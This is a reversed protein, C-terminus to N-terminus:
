PILVSAGVTERSQLARHADRAEALPWSQRPDVDVVGELVVDFLTKASLLLEQRTSVYHFLTPRTLFLSGKRALVLPDFAAAAGSANGFGVLMGRPALCDISREFTAKGVSDYVVPVGVGDTLERVRAVVDERDYVITHHCGHAKALAAKEDSGVTGIVQVGLARLWQCAILGVGGAAAHLLVTMGSKVPFCRHLLYEVTMGKLMMSAAAVDSIGEPLPVVHRAAILRAECYAGIPGTAYAVRDGVVVESVGDGVQEVVGAAELGLGSPLEVPYLGSRHYTDIFNIGVATHRVLVEGPGPEGLEVSALHMVEPGGTNEIRIAQINM